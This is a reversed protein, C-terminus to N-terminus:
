RSVEEFRESKKTLESAAVVMRGRSHLCSACECRTSVTMEWKSLFDM